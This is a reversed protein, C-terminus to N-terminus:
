HARGIKRNPIHRLLSTDRNARYGIDQRSRNWYAGCKALSDARYHLLEIIVGVEDRAAQLRVLGLGQAHDDRINRVRKEWLKDAARFIRCELVTIHQDREIRVITDLAFSLTQAHQTRPASIAQQQHHRPLAGIHGVDTGQGRWWWCCAM